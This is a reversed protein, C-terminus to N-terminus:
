TQVRKDSPSGDPVDFAQAFEPLNSFSDNVRFRGPSHTDIQLLFQARFVVTKTRKRECISEDREQGMPTASSADEFNNADLRGIPAIQHFQRSVFYRLSMLQACVLM